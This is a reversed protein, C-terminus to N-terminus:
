GNERIFTIESDDKQSNFAFVWKSNSFFKDTMHHMLVHVDRLKGLEAFCLV